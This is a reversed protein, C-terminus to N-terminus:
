RAPCRLACATCASPSARPSTTVVRAYAAHTPQEGARHRILATPQHTSQARYLRTPASPRRPTGHHARLRHHRGYHTPRRHHPWLPILPGTSPAMRPHRCHVRRRHSHAVGQPKSVTSPHDLTGVPEPTLPSPRATTPATMSRSKVDSPVLLIKTSTTPTAMCTTSPPYPPTRKLHVCSTSPLRPM